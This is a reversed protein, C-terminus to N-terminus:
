KMIKVARLSGRELETYFLEVNEQEMLINIRAAPTEQEKTEIINGSSDFVQAVLINEWNLYAEGMDKNVTYIDIFDGTRLIGSVVQYLDDAKFGVLVPQKMTDIVKQFEGLMSLTLISGKDIDAASLMGALQEKNIVAAQPIITKDIEAEQFYKELNDEKFVIGQPIDEQAILVKDKEYAKLASTEINLLIIYVIIAALFAAM